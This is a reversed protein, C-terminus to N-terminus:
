PKASSPDDDAPPEDRLERLLEVTGALQEHVRRCPPCIFVHSRVFARKYWPLADDLDDSM